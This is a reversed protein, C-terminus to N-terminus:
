RCGALQRNMAFDYAALRHLTLEARQRKDEAGEFHQRVCDHIVAALTARREILTPDLGQQSLTVWDQEEVREVAAASPVMAKMLAISAADPQGDFYADLRWANVFPNRIM